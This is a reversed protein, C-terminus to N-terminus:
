FTISGSGTFTYIVSGGSNTVVPSGTTATAASQSKIIVVGSGGAAGSDGGAGQGSNATGAAGASNAGNVPTVQDAGVSIGAGGGSFYRTGSYLVGVSAAAALTSYSGVGDGGAGATGGSANGGASAAGGGGGSGGSGFPGTGNGGSFGQGSTGSGGYSRQDTTFGCGGGGCGGDKGQYNGGFSGGGGGGVAAALLSAFSSNTGSTGPSNSDVSAGGGGVTVTYQVGTSYAVASSYVVGGGGGAGGVSTGSGGGGAVVLVELGSVPMVSSSAASYAGTGVGNVAAVRFTYATGNTLGTVTASTSTSTSDSFTTWTSGSNSSYQVVYDTVPAQAIVGTPATWSLVAQENGPTASVNTPAAPVLLARLGTDEGAGAAGGGSVGLEIYVDSADWRYLRSVNTAIYLAGSEGTAPFNAATAYEYVAASSGTITVPLTQPSPQLLTTPLAATPPTHNATYRAAKTVRLEAIRGNWYNADLETYTRGVVVSSQGHSGTASVSGVSTGNVYYNVTGSLRVAALHVWQGTPLLASGQINAGGPHMLFPYGTNTVGISVGYSSGDSVYTSFYSGYTGYATLWVWAEATWDSTGWSFDSSSLSLYDGTGDLAISNTGYKGAANAAANGHATLTRGYKSADTLNGDGRLLLLVNDWYPDTGPITVSGSLSGSGGGGSGGGGTAALVGDTITLGSGIKIGGLVTDSAVPL